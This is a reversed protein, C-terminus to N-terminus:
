EKTFTERLMTRLETGNNHSNIRVYKLVQKGYRQTSMWNFSNPLHTKIMWETSKTNIKMKVNEKGNSSIDTFIYRRIRWIGM